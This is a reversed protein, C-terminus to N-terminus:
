KAGKLMRDVLSRKAEPVNVVHDDAADEIKELEVRAKDGLHRDEYAREAAAKAIDMELARKAADIQGPSHAWGDALRDHVAAENKERLQENLEGDDTYDNVGVLASEIDDGKRRYMAKPFPMYRYAPFEIEPQDPRNKKFHLRTAEQEADRGNILYKPLQVVSM